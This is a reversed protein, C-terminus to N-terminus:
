DFEYKADAPTQEIGVRGIVIDALPYSEGKMKFGSLHRLMALQQGLVKPTIFQDATGSVYTIAAARLRANNAYDV